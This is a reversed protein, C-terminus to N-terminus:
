APPTVPAAAKKDRPWLIAKVWTYGGAATWTLALAGAITLWDVSADPAAWSTGLAGLLSTAGVLVAGGRDTAFWEVGMKSAAARLLKTLLILVGGLVVLWRGGRAAAVTKDLVEGADSDATLPPTAEISNAKPAADAAPPAADQLAPAPTDAFALGVGVHCLGVVLAAVTAAFLLYRLSSPMM